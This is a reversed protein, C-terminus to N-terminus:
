AGEIWERVLYQVGSYQDAAQIAATNTRIRHGAALQVGAPFPVQNEAGDNPATNFIGPLANYISAGSAVINAPTPSRYYVNVGDDLQLRPQRNAAAASATFAFRFVMLQWRAGTPVTESIEAGAGPTTGTISRLAGAGDLSSGVLGNAFALPQKATVYGAAIVQLPLASASSGRVIEVVVYTQGQTPAAGSVFVEGGLLWGEPTEIISSKASRDTNPTQTEASAQIYGSLDVFRHRIQLVVTATANYSTIRLNDDVRLYWSSAFRLGLDDAATDASAANPLPPYTM